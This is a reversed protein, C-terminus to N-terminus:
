EKLLGELDMNKRKKLLKIFDTMDLSKNKPILKILNPNLVYLGINVFFDFKPKEVIKQLYGKTTLKCTGYPIVYEKSSVLLTLENRNILHFNMLDDLNVDQGQSLREHMVELIDLMCFIQDLEDSLFDSPKM